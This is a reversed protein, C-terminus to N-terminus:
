PTRTIPNLTHTPIFAFCMWRGRGPLTFSIIGRELAPYGRMFYEEELTGDFGSVIILTKRKEVGPNPAMFYVPLKIAKYTLMTEEFTHWVYHMAETFCARSKLGLERHRTDRCSTYYEAARYSNCAQFLQARASIFHGKAAREKADKEQWAALKTFADVWSAPDGDQIREAVSLCAGVSAAGYASSGMQRILQFDMEADKFGKVRTTSRQIDAM